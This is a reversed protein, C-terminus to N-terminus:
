GALARLAALAGSALGVAGDPTQPERLNIRVLLGGARAAARESFKRVTPLATGAGCEIVVLKAHAVAVEALWVELRKAQEDSRASDWAFDSFMLINPRALAGCTPCQPFPARARFTVPDVDVTVDDGPFLGCDRTCQLTRIAGHCEYVRDPDFGAAQFHGDVNSTFVFAGHRKTAGLARLIGFGPHPTTERYLNLRHGYFGWALAPDRDFWHPAALDEFKLGLQQYPPYARWFGEPGRFDPLGSDVGMGAGATVLLASAEGIARAARAVDDPTV